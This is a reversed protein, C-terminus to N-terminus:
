RRVIMKRSSEVSLQKGQANLFTVRVTYMGRPLNVFQSTRALVLPKRTDFVKAGSISFYQIRVSQTTEPIRMGLLTGKQSKGTYKHIVGVTDRITDSFEKTITEFKINTRLIFQGGDRREAFFYDLDYKQGVTLNLSDLYCTILVPNHLGGCEIALKGNIFIYCDDDGGTSISDGTHYTFKNRLVYTYGNNMSEENELGFGKDGLLDVKAEDGLFWISDTTDDYTLDNPIWTFTDFDEIKINKFMTDSIMITDPYTTYVTDYIPNDLSDFVANGLSDLRMTDIKTTPTKWVFTDMVGSVWPKFLKEINWSESLYEDTLASNRKPVKDSTLSSDVWGVENVYKEGGQRVGTRVTIKHGFDPNSGDTHYDYFTVPVTLKKVIRQTVYFNNGEGRVSVPILVAFM